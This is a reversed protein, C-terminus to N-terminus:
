CNHSSIKQPVSLLFDRVYVIYLDDSESERIRIRIQSFFNIWVRVWIWAFFCIWLGVWGMFLISDLVSNLDKLNWLNSVWVLGHVIKFGFEYFKVSKLGSGVWPCYQIWIWIQIWPNPNRVGLDYESDLMVDM